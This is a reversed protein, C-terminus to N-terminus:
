PVEVVMRALALPNALGLPQRQAQAPGARGLNATLVVALIWGPVFQAKAGWGAAVLAAQVEKPRGLRRDWGLVRKRQRNLERM